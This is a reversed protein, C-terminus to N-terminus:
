APRSAPKAARRHDALMALLSSRALTECHVTCLSLPTITRVFEHVMRQYGLIVGPQNGNGYAWSWDTVWRLVSSTLRLPSRQMSNVPKILQALCDPATLFILRGSRLLVDPRVGAVTLSSAIEKLCAPGAMIVSQQGVELGEVVFQVIQTLGKEKRVVLRCGSAAEPFATLVNTQTAM